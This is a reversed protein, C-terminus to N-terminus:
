PTTRKPDRPTFSIYRVDEENMLVKILREFGIGAGGHPPSGHKFSDLYSELSKPNVGKEEVQKLLVSYDNERQAGSSLEIGKVILDYSCTYDGEQKTYFPRCDYPYKTCIFADSEYKEKVIKGLKEEDARNFDEFKNEEKRGLLKVAKEFDIVIPYDPMVLYEKKYKIKLSDSIFKLLSWLMTYPQSFDSRPSIEMEFDLGTFECLHNHGVSNEARFVPGETYVRKLDSNIAMQKYLQPSQSLYVKKDFYKVEFVDAGGESVSPNLKTFDMNVFGNSHMFQHFFYKVDSKLRFMELNQIARVDIHRYDLRTSRGVGPVYDKAESQIVSIPVTESNSIIEFHDPIFELNKIDCSKVEGVEPPIGTFFGEVYLISESSLKRLKLYEPRNEDTRSILSQITKGDKRFILFCRKGQARINHIRVRMGYKQKIIDQDTSYKQSIKQIKEFSDLISVM